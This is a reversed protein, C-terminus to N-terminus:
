PTWGACHADNPDHYPAVDIVDLHHLPALGAARAVRIAEAARAQGIDDRDPVILLRGRQRRVRPAVAEVVSRLQGAGAAGLALAHPWLEIATLTDIIGETVIVDMSRVLDVIRGCLTGRTTGGTPTHIKRTPDWTPGVLLRRTVTVFSAM